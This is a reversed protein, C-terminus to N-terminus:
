CLHNGKTREFRKLSKKRNIVIKLIDVKEHQDHDGFSVCSACIPVNCHRCYVECIKQSHEQCKPYNVTSGRKKFSVVKHDTSEDSLHDVECAKCINIHCIDCHMPPVPTECLDCRTVDQASHNSDMSKLSFDRFILILKICNLM